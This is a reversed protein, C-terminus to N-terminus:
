QDKDSLGIDSNDEHPDFHILKRLTPNGDEAWDIANDLNKVIWEWLDQKYEITWPANYDLNCPLNPPSKIENSDLYKSSHPFIIDRFIFIRRKHLNYLRLIKSSKTDGVIYYKIRRPSLKSIGLKKEEPGHMYYKAEFPYLHNISAKDICILKYPSKKLKFTSYPLYNKIYIATSCAEAWLAQPIMDDYDLTM